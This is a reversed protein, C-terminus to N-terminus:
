REGIAKFDSADLETMAPVVGSHRPASPTVDLSHNVIRTPEVSQRESVGQSPQEVRADREKTRLTPSGKAIPEKGFAISELRDLDMLLQTQGNLSAVGSLCSEVDGLSRADVSTLNSENLTRVSVISDVIFGLGAGPRSAVLVIERQEDRIVHITDDLLRLLEALTGRRAESLELMAENHKGAAALSLTHDALAHIMRHPRDIKALQMRLVANDTQFSFYWKGFACQTPDRAMTFPVSDTISKELTNLWREHDLKRQVLMAVMSELEANASPEGLLLRLDVLTLVHGRLNLMGRISNSANHKVVQSDLTVMERIQSAPFLIDHSAVQTQVWVNAAVTGTEERM